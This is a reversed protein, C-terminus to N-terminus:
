KDPSQSTTPGGMALMTAVRFGTSNSSACGSAPASTSSVVLAVTNMMSNQFRDCCCPKSEPKPKRGSLSRGSGNTYLGFKTDQKFRIAAATDGVAFNV